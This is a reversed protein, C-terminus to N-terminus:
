YAVGGLDQADVLLLHALDDRCVFLSLVIVIIEGLTDGLEVRLQLGCRFVQHLISSIDSNRYGGYMLSDRALNTDGTTRKPLVDLWNAARLKRGLDLPRGYNSEIHQYEFVVVEREEIFAVVKVDKLKGYWLEDGVALRRNEPVPFRHPEYLSRFQCHNEYAAQIQEDRTLERKLLADVAEKTAPRYAVVGELLVPTKEVTPDETVYQWWQKGAKKQQERWEAVLTHGDTLEVEYFGQRVPPESASKWDKKNVSSM